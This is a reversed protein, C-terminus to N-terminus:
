ALSNFNENYSFCYWIFLLVLKLFTANCDRSFGDQDVTHKVHFEIDIYKCISILFFQTCIVLINKYKIEKKNFCTAHKYLANM